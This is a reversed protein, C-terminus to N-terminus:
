FFDREDSGNMFHYDDDDAYNDPDNTIRGVAAKFRQTNIAQLAPHEPTGAFKSFQKLSVKNFARVRMYSYTGYENKTSDTIVACYVSDKDMIKRVYAAESASVFGLTRGHPNVVKIANVDFKNNDDTM